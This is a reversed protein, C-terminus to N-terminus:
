LVCNTVKTILMRTEHDVLTHVDRILQNIKDEKARIENQAVDYQQKLTNLEMKLDTTEQEQAQQVQQSIQLIGSIFLFLIRLQFCYILLCWPILKGNPKCCSADEYCIRHQYM